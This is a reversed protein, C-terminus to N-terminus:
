GDNKRPRETDFALLRWLLFTPEYGLVGSVIVWVLWASM